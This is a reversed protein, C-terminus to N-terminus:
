WLQKGTFVNTTDEKFPQGSILILIYGSTSSTKNKKLPITKRRFFKATKKLPKWHIAYKKVVSAFLWHVSAISIYVNMIQLTDILLLPSLEAKEELLIEIVM